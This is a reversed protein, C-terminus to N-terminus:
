NRLETEALNRSGRRNNQRFNLLPNLTPPVLPTAPPCWGSKSPDSSGIEVRPLLKHMIAYRVSVSGSVMSDPGRHM